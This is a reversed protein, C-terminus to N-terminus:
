YTGQGHAGPCRRCGRARAGLRRRLNHMYCGARDSRAGALTAHLWLDSDACRHRSRAARAEGLTAVALASAGSALATHAVRLAGHGYADAKLTAMLPVGAIARLRGVNHAIADLDIQLWTPRDPAGARVSRWATEQRVLLDAARARDALLGAAVQELRAEASGKVLVLDGPELDRPLAALAATNTHVVQAVITPNAQRAMHTAAVGWDGKCILWNAVAGALTGIQEYAAAASSGLDAPTGLVAIRRRAPLKGLTRLAALTAPLTSSFSDDLLTAGARAPLAHLRGAVPEIQMLAGAAQQLPMGCALAAGIAALGIMVAPEGVLPITAEVIQGDEMWQDAQDVCTYSPGRIYEYRERMKTHRQPNRLRGNWRLRFRTQDLAYEIESACLDNNL